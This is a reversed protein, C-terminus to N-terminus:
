TGIRWGGMQWPPTQDTQAIFAAIEAELLELDAAGGPQLAAEEDPNLANGERQDGDQQPPVGDETLPNSGDGGLLQEESIM